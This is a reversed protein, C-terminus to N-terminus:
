EYVVGKMKYAKSIRRIWPRTLNHEVVGGAREYAHIITGNETVLAVHQPYRLFRIWIIAGPFLQDKRVPEMHELLGKEMEISDPSKTYTDNDKVPLGFDMAVRAFLGICDLGKETRGMHKYKVGVYERAKAIFDNQTIIM